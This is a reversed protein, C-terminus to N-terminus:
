EGDGGSMLEQWYEEAAARMRRLRVDPLDKGYYLREYLSDRDAEAQEIQPSPSEQGHAFGLSYFGALAPTLDHLGLDGLVLRWLASDLQREVTHGVLGTSDHTGNLGGAHVEVAGTADSPRNREARM